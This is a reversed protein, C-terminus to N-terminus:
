IYRTLLQIKLRGAPLPNFDVEVRISLKQGKLESLGLTKLLGPFKLMGSQVIKSTKAETELILGNLKFERRLVSIIESFDYNKRRILSFDLDESFRRMNYLIRLATGGVFALNAFYGKDQLTKLALLQLLKRLKNIKNEYSTEPGIYQKLLDIV